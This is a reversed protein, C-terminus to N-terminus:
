WGYCRVAQQKTQTRFLRVGCGTLPSAWIASRICNRLSEDDRRSTAKRASPTRSWRHGSSAEELTLEHTPKGPGAIGANNVLVDLQGFAGVVDAFVHQIAQEDTTSGFIVM